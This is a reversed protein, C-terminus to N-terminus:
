ILKKKQCTNTCNSIRLTEFTTNKETCKRQAAQWKRTTPLMKRRVLLQAYFISEMALCFPGFFLQPRCAVMKTAAEKQDKKAM